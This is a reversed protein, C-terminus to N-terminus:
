RVHAPHEGEPQSVVDQVAARPPPQPTMALASMMLLSSTIPASREQADYDETLGDDLTSSSIFSMDSRLPSVIILSPAGSSRSAERRDMLAFKAEIRRTPIGSLNYGMRLAQADTIFPDPSV